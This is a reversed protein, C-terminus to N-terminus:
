RRVFAALVVLEVELTMWLQDLFMVQLHDHYSIIKMYM